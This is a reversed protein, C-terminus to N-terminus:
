FSNFLHYKAEQMQTTATFHDTHLSEKQLSEVTVGERLYQEVSPLSLLKQLPTKYERYHKIVKGSLLVEEEPFACYRHYNLFPTLYDRYFVAIREAHQRPIHIHGMHRRITSANKGEVLANDNCHRSRGKTQSIHLKQLLAAVTHNIYESGNDSHFNVVRFPFRQLAEELVPLLFRESIGELCCVVQYQTVEDVLNIHYVGKEKDRDGQHVSDVRLYGPTGQPFPKRRVGIPTSGRKTKTFHRVTTKFVERKKLNYLHSPSLDKLRVFREDGYIEYMGRLVRCLAHGNMPGYCEVVRALLAVDSVTYKEQFTPQTRRKKRIYGTQKYQSMLRKLHPLSYGSHASLYRLAIGKEERRLTHYQMKVVREEIWQYRKETSDSCKLPAIEAAKLLVAIDQINTIHNHKM